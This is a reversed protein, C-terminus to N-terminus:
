GNLNTMMAGCHDYSESQWFVGGRGMQRNCEKATHLKLTHMIRERPPRVHPLNGVQRPELLNAVQEVAPSATEEAVGEGLQQQIPRFVWHLHSPMVAYALLDYRRNAWYLCANVVIKALKPDALHRVAPRRDLWDDSRAFAKKWCRLERDADSMNGITPFLALRARYRAVDLLGEAPISGALCTTVFYTAGPLDWHPLRRHRYVGNGEM